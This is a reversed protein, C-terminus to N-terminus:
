EESGEEQTPRIPSSPGAEDEFNLARPTITSQRATSQFTELDLEETDGSKVNSAEKEEVNIEETEDSKREETEDSKREFDPTVAANRDVIDEDKNRGVQVSSVKKKPNKRQRKRRKKLNQSEVWLRHGQALGM